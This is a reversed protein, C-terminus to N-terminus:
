KLTAWRLPATSLLPATRLQVVTMRRQLEVLPMRIQGTVTVIGDDVPILPGHPLVTWTDHIKPATPFAM